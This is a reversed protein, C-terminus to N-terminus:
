KIANGLNGYSRSASSSIVFITTGLLSIVLVAIIVWELVSDGKHNTLM